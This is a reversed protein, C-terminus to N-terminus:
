IIRALLRSIFYGGFIAILRDVINVQIRSLINVVLLRLNDIAVAETYGGCFTLDIIDAKNYGTIKLPFDRNFARELFAPKEWTNGRQCPAAAVYIKRAQL